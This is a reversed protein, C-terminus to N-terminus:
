ASRVLHHRKAQFIGGFYQVNITMDQRNRLCAVAISSSGASLSTRPVDTASTVSGAASSHKVLYRELLDIIKKNGAAHAVSLLTRSPNDSSQSWTVEVSAGRELLVQLFSPKGHCVAFWLPTRGPGDLRELQAHHKLLLRGNSVRGHQAACHLPSAGDFGNSNVDLGKDIFEQVLAPDPGKSAYHLLNERDNARWLYDAKERLLLKVVSKHGHRVAFGLPRTGHYDKAEKNAGRHILLDVMAMQGAKCALHLATLGSGDKAEMAAGTDLLFTVMAKNGEMAALHLLNRGERDKAERDAEAEILFEIVDKKGSMAALHLVTWGSRDRLDKNAKTWLYRVVPVHGSVAATQLPSRGSFDLIDATAGAEILAEVLIEDGRM